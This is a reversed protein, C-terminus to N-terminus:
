LKSNSIFCLHYYVQVDHDYCFQHHTRWFDLTSTWNIGRRTRGFISFEIIEHDSYGLSGGVVMDGVLGERNMFLLDIVHYLMSKGNGAFPLSADPLYRDWWTLVAGVFRTILVSTKQITGAVKTNLFHGIDESNWPLIIAYPFNLCTDGLERYNNQSTRSSDWIPAPLEVSYAQGARGWTM